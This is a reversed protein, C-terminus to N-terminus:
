ATAEKASLLLSVIQDIQIIETVFYLSAEQRQTSLPKM